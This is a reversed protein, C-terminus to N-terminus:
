LGRCGRDRCGGHVRLGKVRRYGWCGGTAGPVEGSDEQVGPGQLGRFGGAGGPVERCGQGQTSVPEGKEGKRGPEGKAGFDGRSGQSVPCRDALPPSSPVAEM